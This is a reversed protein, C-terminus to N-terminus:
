ANALSVDERNLGAAPLFELSLSLGTAGLLPAPPHPEYVLPTKSAMVRGAEEDAGPGQFLLLVSSGERYEDPVFGQGDGYFPCGKCAPPKPNMRPGPQRLRRSLWRSTRMTGSSVVPERPRITALRGGPMSPSPRM